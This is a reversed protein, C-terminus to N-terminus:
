EVRKVLARSFWRSARRADGWIGVSAGGGLADEYYGYTFTAPDSGDAPYVIGEFSAGGIGISRSSLSAQKSLQKFTPRTPRADVLAIEMRTEADPDIRIGARGFALGLDDKIDDLLDDLADQGLYGGSAFGADLSRVGQTEGPNDALYALQAGIRIDVAVPGDLRPLEGAFGRYTPTSGDIETDSLIAGQRGFVPDPNRPALSACAGISM